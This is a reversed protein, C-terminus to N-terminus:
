CAAMIQLVVCACSKDSVQCGLLSIYCTIECWYQLIQRVQLKEITKDRDIIIQKQQALEQLSCGENQLDLLGRLNIVESALCASLWQVEPSGLSLM